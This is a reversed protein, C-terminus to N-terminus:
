KEKRAGGMVLLSLLMGCTAPAGYTLLLTELYGVDGSMSFVAALAAGYLILVVAQSGKSKLWVPERGTLLRALELCNVLVCALSLYTPAYLNVMVDDLDRAAQTTFAYSFLAVPIMFAAACACLLLALFVWGRKGASQGATKQEAHGHNRRNAAALATYFQRVTKYRNRHEVAMGKLIVAEEAPSIDASLATPRQLTDKGQWRDLTSAPTVQTVANYITAALAYVDTWPGQEGHTQFQEKPAYGVKVNVTNSREGQLSFARAAGFDLLKAAGVTTIMINDPSIDRHLLGAAHVRELSEAVPALLVLVDGLLMPRGLGALYQKLTQGEVFEMVIYATGNEQFFDLVDVINPDSSFRALNRAEASFRDRGQRFLKVDDQTTRPSVTYCDRDRTVFDGPYYEKIAVKREQSIDWAIYTIGFGGQGLARGILYKGALFSGPVLQHPQNQTNSQWGCAPCPVDPRDLYNMCGLCLHQLATPEM